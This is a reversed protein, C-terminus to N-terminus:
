AASDQRRSSSKALRRSLYARMPEDYIKTLILSIALTICISAVIATNKSYHFHDATWFVARGIPFHLCYLPYSIWGLFQAMKLSYNGPCPVISGIFVLAPAIFALILAPYLGKMEVPFLFIAVLFAYILSPRKVVRLILTRASNLKEDNRLSYILIGVSFSFIVRPFGGYLSSKGVGLALDCAYRHDLFAHLLGCAIFAIYSGIVIWVLTTRSSRFMALFALSAIVEFFLSWAPPNSPFIQGVSLIPSGLDYAGYANICPLYFLNILSSTGIFGGPSNSLGARQLLYLVPAGIILGLLFMPYLRIFRKGIYELSGLGGARRGRGAVLREGYSHAIVFGSLVFFLDVALPANHLLKPHVFKCYHFVMVAFAAVGRMGDLTEYRSHSQPLSQDKPV